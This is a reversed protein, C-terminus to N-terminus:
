LRHQVCACGCTIEGPPLRLIWTVRALCTARAGAFTGFNSRWFWGPTRIYSRPDERRRDINQGSITRRQTQASTVPSLDLNYTPATVPAWAWGLSLGLV